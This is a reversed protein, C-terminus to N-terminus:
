IFERNEEAARAGERVMDAVVYALIAATLTGWFGLSFTFQYQAFQSSAMLGAVFSVVINALLTHALWRFRSAVVLSLPPHLYLAKGLRRLCIIPAMTAAFALLWTCTLLSGQIPQNPMLHWRELTNQATTPDISSIGSAQWLLLAFALWWVSAGLAFVSAFSMLHWARRQIRTLPSGTRHARPKALRARINRVSTPLAM